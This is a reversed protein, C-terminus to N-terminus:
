KPLNLKGKWLHGDAITWIEDHFVVRDGFMEGFGQSHKMSAPLPIRKAQGSVPLYALDNDYGVIMGGEEGLVGVLGGLSSSHFQKWVDGSQVLALYLGSMGFIADVSLGEKVPISNYSKDWTLIPGFGCIMAEILSDGRIELLTDAKL